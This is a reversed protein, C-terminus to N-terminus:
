NKLSGTHGPFLPTKQVYFEPRVFIQRLPLELAASEAPSLTPTSNFLAQAEALMADDMHPIQRLEMELRTWDHFFRIQDLDTTGEIVVRCSGHPTIPGIEISICGYKFTTSKPGVAKEWAAFSTHSFILFLTIFLLRM